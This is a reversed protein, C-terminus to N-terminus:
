SFINPVKCLPLWPNRLNHVSIYKKYCLLSRLEVVELSMMGDTEYGFSEATWLLEHERTQGQHVTILPAVPTLCRVLHVLYM